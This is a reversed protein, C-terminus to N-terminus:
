TSGCSNPLKTARQVKVPSKAPPPPLSAQPRRIFRCEEQVPNVTGRTCVSRSGVRRVRHFFALYLGQFECPPKAVLAKYLWRGPTVGSCTDVAHVKPTAKLVMRVEFWLWSGPVCLSAM